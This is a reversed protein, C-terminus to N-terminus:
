SGLVCWITVTFVGAGMEILDSCVSTESLMRMWTRVRVRVRGEGYGGKVQWLSEALWDKELIVM